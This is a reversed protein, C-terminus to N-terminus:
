AERRRIDFDEGPEETANGRGTPPNHHLNIAPLPIQHKWKAVHGKDTIWEPLSIETRIEDIDQDLDVYHYALFLYVDPRRIVKPPIFLDGQFTVPQILDKLKRGIKRATLVDRRGTGTRHNGRRFVMAKTGDPTWIQPINDSDRREWKSPLLDDRVNRVWTDWFAFSRSMRSNSRTTLDAAAQGRRIAKDILALTLGPGIEALTRALQDGPEPVAPLTEM